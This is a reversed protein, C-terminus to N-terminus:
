RVDRKSVADRAKALERELDKCRSEAAQKELALWALKRAEESDMGEDGHSFAQFNVNSPLGGIYPGGAVRPIDSDEDIVVAQTESSATVTSDTMEASRSELQRRQTPAGDFAPARQLEEKKDAEKVHPPSDQLAMSTGRDSVHLLLEREARADLDDELLGFMYYISLYEIDITKPGQQYRHLPRREGPVIFTSRFFIPTCRLVKPTSVM